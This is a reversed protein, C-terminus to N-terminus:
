LGLLAGMREQLSKAPITRAAPELHEAAVPNQKSQLFVRRLTQNEQELARYREELADIEGQRAEFGENWEYTLADQHKRARAAEAASLLVETEFLLDAGLSRISGRTSEDLIPESKEAEEDDNARQAAEMLSAIAMETFSTGRAIRHAILLHGLGPWLDNRWIRTDLRHWGKPTVYFAEPEDKADTTSAIAFHVALDRM